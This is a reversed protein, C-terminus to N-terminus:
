LSIFPLLTRTIEFVNFVFDALIKLYTSNKIQCFNIYKQEYLIEDEIKLNRM